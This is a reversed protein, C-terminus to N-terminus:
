SAAPRTRLDRGEPTGPGVGPAARAPRSPHVWGATRLIRRGQCPSRTGLYAMRSGRYHYGSSVRGFAVQKTTKLPIVLLDSREIRYRLAWLHGTYNSIMGEAAAPWTARVVEGLDERSVCGALDPVEKWGGGSVGNDLAWQDREGYKGSRIVWAGAM